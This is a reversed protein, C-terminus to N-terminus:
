MDNIIPETQFVLEALDMSQKSAALNSLEINEKKIYINDMNHRNERGACIMHGIM